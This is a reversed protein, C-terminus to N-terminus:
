IWIDTGSVPTCGGAGTGRPQLEECWELVPRVLLCAVAGLFPAARFCPSRPAAICFLPTLFWMWTQHSYVSALNLGGDRGLQHFM